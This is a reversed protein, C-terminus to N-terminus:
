HMIKFFFFMVFAFVVLNKLSRLQMKCERIEKEVLAECVRTEMTLTEIEDECTNVRKQLTISAGKIKDVKRILDVLEEYMSVDTWKFTHYWDVVEGCRCIKPIGRGRDGM